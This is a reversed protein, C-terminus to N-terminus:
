VLSGVLFIEIQNCSILFPKHDITLQMEQGAITYSGSIYSGLVPVNITGSIGNGTFTGGQSTAKAQLNAIMVSAPQNFSITLECTNM